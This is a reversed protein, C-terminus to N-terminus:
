CEILDLNRKQYKFGESQHDISKVFCKTLGLKIQPLPLLVNEKEQNYVQWGRM